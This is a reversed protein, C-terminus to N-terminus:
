LKIDIIHTMHRNLNIKRSSDMKIKFKNKIPPGDCTIAV